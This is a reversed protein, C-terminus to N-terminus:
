VLAATPSIVPDGLELGMLCVQDIAFLIEEAFGYSEAALLCRQWTAGGVYVGILYRVLGPPWAWIQIPLEMAIRALDVNFSSVDRDLAEMKMRDFVAGPTQWEAPTSVYNNLAGGVNFAGAPLPYLVDYPYLLEVAANPYASKVSSIIFKEHGLLRGRLFNADAYGNISPDDNPAAFVHLPRGLAAIAAAATAADYFAMGPAAPATSGAFYWWLHEGCQLIVPLGAATMLAATNLYISQQYALFAANSPVCQSSNITGFGTATTVQTGDPFLSVWADPPFCLEMSYSVVVDIGLAACRTFLDTMWTAAAVNIVPNQTPDVVWTSLTGGELSGTYALPTATTNKYAAFSFSYSSGVARLTVTLVTGSYSAFVGAAVENLYYCFHAAILSVDTVEAPFITKGFVEGGLDLYVSDGDGFGTGASYTTQSFDITISPVSGGSRVKQYFWFVGMYLNLEAVSYGLTTVLWLLRTPSLTYGHPTDYDLAPSRDTWPGPADPVDSPVAAEIFDFVLTGGVTNSLVVLHQGAAVNSRVLRRSFVQSSSDIAADLATQADGDLSVGFTGYGEYLELGVYLDHVSQCYYKVNASDGQTFSAQAFGKSFSDSTQLSWGGALTCWPDNEEVRVSGPGAVSLSADGTGTLNWNSFIATWETTEYAAGIALAPAFTLWLQRVSTLGLDSFNLVVNWTSASSGGTLPAVAPSISLTSAAYTETYLTVFNGDLGAKESTVTINAGSAVAAIANAGAWDTANIAAALTAAVDAATEGGVANFDYAYNQYWITVRDFLICAGTPTTLTLITEAATYNGSVQTANAFLSVQVSTEDSLIADLYPWDITPFFDSDIPQLGPSYSLDFSLVLGSLDFDPLYKLFPHGYYDDADYIYMVAFDAADRFVGTVTFGEASAGTISAMAGFADVGRLHVTYRPDLKQLQTSV